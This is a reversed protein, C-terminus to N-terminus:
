RRADVSRVKEAISAREAPNGKKLKVELKALKKKRQRRRRIEKQRESIGM